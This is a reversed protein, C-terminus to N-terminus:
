LAPPQEPQDSRPLSSLRRSRLDSPCSYTLASGLGRGQHMPDVAIFPLYWHPETPHYEGMQGMFAFRTEQESAPIAKMALEAMAEADSHANPPVWLSAAVFDGTSYASGHDFTGAAMLPILQPFYTLYQHPEPLFWRAIPDASFGTVITSVARQQQDPKTASIIPPSTM